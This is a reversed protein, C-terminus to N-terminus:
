RGRVSEAGVFKVQVPHSDVYLTDYSLDLDGQWEVSGAVVRASNFIAPNSLRAFVDRSLYPAIDFIRREGNAFVLELRYDALPKVTQVYPNM